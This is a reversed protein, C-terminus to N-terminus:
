KLRLTVKKKKLIGSSHYSRQSIQYEIPTTMALYRLIEELPEENFTAKFRFKKLAEDQITIEANYWREIKKAAQALPENDIVLFGHTWASYVTPDVNKVNFSNKERNYSIREGPQLTRSFEAANGNIRVKGEVLVVNTSPEDRYASINFQTGLVSVDLDQAKVTFHSESQRKVDFFAEGELEVERHSDFKAPYKLKGGCNLWGTTGDPLLFEVRAGNPANIEVWSQSLTQPSKSFLYLMSTLAIIPILIAAARKYLHWFVKKHEKRKEELLVQYQIREFIPYLSNDVPSNIVSTWQEFLKQETSEDKRDDLFWQKIKQFDNYSYKGKSFDHLLKYDIRNGM